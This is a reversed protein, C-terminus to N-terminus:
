FGLARGQRRRAKPLQGHRRVFGMLELLSRGKAAQAVARVGDGYIPDRNELIMRRRPAAEDHRSKELWLLECYTCLGEELMPPLTPFHNCFLWAHCLEHAAVTEFHIKPLCYLIVIERLHRSVERKGQRTIKTLTMGMAPHAPQRPRSLRALEEGTVMRFPPHASRLDLGLLSMERKVRAFSNLGDERQIVASDYCIHCIQRGDSLSKGGGTIRNCILRSCSFCRPVQPGHEQCFAHGWIDTLYAGVLPTACLDCPRTFRRHYCDQHYARGKRPLYPGRGIPRNCAECLFCEAHWSADNFKLFTGAINQGCGSCRQGFRKQFCRVHYAHGDREHFTQRHITEGCDRCRFCSAHWRRNLAELIPGSLNQGCGPCAEMRKKPM